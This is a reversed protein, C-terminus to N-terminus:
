VVNVKVGLDGDRTDADGDNGDCKSGDHVQFFLLGNGVTQCSRELRQVTGGVTAEVHIFDPHEDRLLNDETADGGRKGPPVTM